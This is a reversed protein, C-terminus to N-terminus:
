VLLKISKEGYSVGRWTELLMRSPWRPQSRLVSRSRQMWLLQSNVFCCSQAKARLEVWQKSSPDTKASARPCIPHTFIRWVIILPMSLTNHFGLYGRAGSCQSNRLCPLRGSCDGLTCVGAWEGAGASYARRGGTRDDEWCSQSTWVEHIRFDLDLFASFGDWPGQTTIFALCWGWAPGELPEQCLVLQRSQHCTKLPGHSDGRGDPSAIKQKSTLRYKKLVLWPWFLDTRKKATDHQLLGIISLIDLKCHPSPGGPAFSHLPSTAKLDRGKCKTIPVM